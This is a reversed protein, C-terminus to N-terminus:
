YYTCMYDTTLTCTTLLLHVHLLYLPTVQLSGFAMTMAGDDAFKQNLESATSAGQGRLKDTGKWIAGTLGELGVKRLKSALESKSLVETVYKFPDINAPPALSGAVHQHLELSRLWQVM